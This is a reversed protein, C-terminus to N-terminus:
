DMPSSNTQIARTYENGARIVPMRNKNLLRVIQYTDIWIQNRGDKQSETFIIQLGYHLHPERINDVNERRSYGTRGLYGIVDGARVTQGIALDAAFPHDRRLHAFYHYRRGDLSRIGIRWGGYQNWGMAEIIGDEVAIIPTGIAGFFDHGLHRRRYGYDRPNGFDDSHHYHYNKAIPSFARLGYRRQIITADPNDPDPIEIEYIGLMNGLIAGYAKLYFNFLRLDATIEMICEGASLKKALDNIHKCDGRAPFNGWNKAASYALLTIWCLPTDTNQSNIDIDMAQALLAHPIDFDIWRIHESDSDGDNAAIRNAIGANLELRLNHAFLNTVGLGHMALLVAACFFIILALKRYSM